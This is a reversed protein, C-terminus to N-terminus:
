GLSLFSLSSDRKFGHIDISGQSVTETDLSNLLLKFIEAQEVKVRDTVLLNVARNVAFVALASCEKLISFLVNLFLKGLILYVESNFTSNLGYVAKVSLHIGEVLGKVLYVVEVRYTDNYISLKLTICRKTKHMFHELGYGTSKLIVNRSRLGVEVTRKMSGNDSAGANRELNLDSGSLHVLLSFVTDCRVPLILRTLLASLAYVLLKTPNSLQKLRILICTIRILKHVGELGIDEM